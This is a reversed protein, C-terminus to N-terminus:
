CEVLGDVYVPDLSAYGGAVSGLEFEPVRGEGWDVRAVRASDEFLMRHEIYLVLHHKPM